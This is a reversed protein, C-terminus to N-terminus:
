HLVSIPLKIVPVAPAITPKEDATIPTAEINTLSFLRHRGERTSNSLPKTIM